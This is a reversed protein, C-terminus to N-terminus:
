SRGARAGAPEGSPRDYRGSEIAVGGIGRADKHHVGAAKSAGHVGACLPPAHCEEEKLERLEVDKARLEADKVHLEKTLHRVESEM